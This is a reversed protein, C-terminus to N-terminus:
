TRVERLTPTGRGCWVLSSIVGEPRMGFDCGQLTDPPTTPCEAPSPDPYRNVLGRILGRALAFGLSGSMQSSVM